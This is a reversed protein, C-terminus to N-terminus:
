EIGYATNVHFASKEGFGFGSLVAKCSARVGFAVANKREVRCLFSGFTITHLKVRCIQSNIGVSHWLLGIHFIGIQFKLDATVTSQTHM